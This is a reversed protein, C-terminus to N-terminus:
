PTHKNDRDPQKCVQNSFIQIGFFFVELTIWLVPTVRKGGINVLEQMESLVKSYNEECISTSSVAFRQVGLNDLFEFANQPNTYFDGFQGIHVHADALM